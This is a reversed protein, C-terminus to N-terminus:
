DAGQYCSPSVYAKTTPVSEKLAAAAANNGGPPSAGAQEALREKAAAAAARRPRGAGPQPSPEAPSAADLPPADDVDAAPKRSGRASRLKPPM